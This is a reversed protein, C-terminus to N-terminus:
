LGQPRTTNGSCLQVSARPFLCTVYYSDTYIRRENRLAHLFLFSSHVYQRNRFIGMVQSDPSMPTSANSPVGIGSAKVVCVTSLAEPFLLELKPRTAREPFLEFIYRVTASSIHRPMNITTRHDRAKWSRRPQDCHLHTKKQVIHYAHVVSMQCEDLGRTINQVDREWVCVCVCV